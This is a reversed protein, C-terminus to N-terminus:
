DPGDLISGIAWSERYGKAPAIHLRARPNQLFLGATWPSTYQTKTCM